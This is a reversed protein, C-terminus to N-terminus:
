VIITVTATHEVLLTQEIVVKQRTKTEKQIITENDVDYDTMTNYVQLAIM